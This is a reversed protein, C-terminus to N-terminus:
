LLTCSTGLTAVPIQITETEVEGATKIKVKGVNVEEANAKEPEEETAVTRQMTETKEEEVKAKEAIGSKISLRSPNEFVKDDKKECSYYPKVYNILTQCISTCCLSTSCLNNIDRLGDFLLGSITSLIGGITVGATSNSICKVIHRTVQKSEDDDKEQQESGNDSCEKEKRQIRACIGTSLLFSINSILTIGAILKIKEDYDFSSGDNLSEDSSILPLLFNSFVYMGAAEGLSAYADERKPNYFLEALGNLLRKCGTIAEDLLYKCDTTGENEKCDTTEENEMKSGDSSDDDNKIEIITDSTNGMNKGKKNIFM